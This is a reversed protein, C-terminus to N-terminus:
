GVYCLAEMLREWFAAPIEVDDPDHRSMSLNPADLIGKSRHRHFGGYFLRHADDRFRCVRRRCCAPM